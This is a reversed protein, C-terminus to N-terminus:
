KDECPQQEDSDLFPAQPCQVYRLRTGQPALNDARMATPANNIASGLRESSQHVALLAIMDDQEIGDGSVGIAGVLTNGRYIPVSGPFIQIGNALRNHAFPSPSFTGLPNHAIGGCGTSVDTPIAGAAFLVHQLIGNIVLDLQLGTSFPSWEGAPKSLPGHSETDIGDPYFPRSLNGGARDSFAFAGDALATPQALFSRLEILYDGIDVTNTSTLVGGPLGIYRADIGPTTLTAAANASSFFAATRAKQLAVDAGFVPADRTRVMGLVNGDVDVVAITVRAQSGLPKRIQARARNAIQLAEELVTAVEASTLPNLAPQLGNIPPFRNNDAADVFVFGDEDSFSSENAILDSAARVGSAADGFVLGTSVVGNSYGPVVVLNGNAPPFAPASEPNSRLDRSTADSFRLTKGEVTIRDARRDTPASYGFSAAVAIVEDVNGSDMDDDAVNVDLSYLDDSIVGVGGVVTGNKYLPFGGPDASLGLPSRKPGFDPALNNFAQIFDSCALQSFQVGFLPGGAQFLEGPNFHEQVIQGATRTSFANGESSLYAGTVAKAIAALADIGAEIGELGGSIQSGGSGDPQSAILVNRPVNAGTRWVALVNGVRDSVAITADVGQANAEAVAQSIIGQVDTTTLRVNDANGKRETEVCTGDCNANATPSVGPESRDSSGGGCATLLLIAIVSSLKLREM